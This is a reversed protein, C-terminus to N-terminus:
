IGSTEEPRVDKVRGAPCGPALSLARYGLYGATGVLTLPLLISKGLLSCCVAKWGSSVAPLGIGAGNAWAIIKTAAGVKQFPVIM